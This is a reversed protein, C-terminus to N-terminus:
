GIDCKAIRGEDQTMGRCMSKIGRREEVCKCENDEMGVIIVVRGMWIALVCKTISESFGIMEATEVDKRWVSCCDCDRLQM